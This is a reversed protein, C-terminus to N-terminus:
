IKCHRISERVMGQLGVHHPLIPRYQCQMVSQIHRRDWHPRHWARFKRSRVNHLFNRQGAVPLIVRVHDRNLLSAGCHNVEWLHSQERMGALCGRPVRASGDTASHHSRPISQCERHAPTGPPAEPKPQARRKPLRTRVPPQACSHAIAGSMRHMDVEGSGVRRSIYDPWGIGGDCGSSTM